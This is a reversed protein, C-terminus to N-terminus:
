SESEDPALYKGERLRAEDAFADVVSATEVSGALLLPLREGPKPPSGWRPEGKGGGLAPQM